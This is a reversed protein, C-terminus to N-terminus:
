HSAQYNIYFLVTSDGPRIKGQIRSIKYYKNCIQTVCKYSNMPPPVSASKDINKLCHYLIVQFFFRIQKSELIRLFAYKEEKLTPHRHGLSTDLVGLGHLSTTRFDSAEHVGSLADGVSYRTALCASSVHGFAGTVKSM